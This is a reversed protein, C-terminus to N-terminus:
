KKHVALGVLYVIPHIIKCFVNGVLSDKSKGKTLIHRLHKTRETAFYAGINTLVNNVKMGRVFPKFLWHYGVEHIPTLYKKQYIYWTKMAQSWDDLQTQRYMETCVIKSDGPDGAAAAERDQRDRDAMRADRAEEQTPANGPKGSSDTFNVSTGDEHTFSGDQNESYTTGSDNIGIGVSGGRANVDEQGGSSFNDSVFTDPTQRAPQDRLDREERQEKRGGLAGPSAIQNNDFLQQSQRISSQADNSFATLPPDEFFGTERNYKRGTPLGAGQRRAEADAPGDIGAGRNRAAISQQALDTINIRSPEGTEFAGGLNEGLGFALQRDVPSIPAATPAGTEFAGGLNEGLGFALQRDVPAVPAATGGLTPAGTEFAGGLNEGLGFALQRNVPSVPATSPLTQTSVPSVPATEVRPMTSTGLGAPRPMPMDQPRMGLGGYNGAKIKEALAITQERNAKGEKTIAGYLGGSLLNIQGKTMNVLDSALEPNPAIFNARGTNLADAVNAIGTVNGNFDYQLAYEQGGITARAGGLGASIEPDGGDGGSDQQVVRAPSVPAPDAAPPPTKDKDGSGPVGTQQGVYSGVNGAGVVTKTDTTPGLQLGAPTTFPTPSTGVPTKRVSPQLKDDIGDRNRDVFGTSVFQASAAEPTTVRGFLDQQKAIGQTTAVNPANMITMGAQASKIENDVYEVQGADEMEGLGRLADRRLGEYMGLGHYRVVNAPVVLEGESLLVHQDDKVEDSTAGPPPDAPTGKSAEEYEPQSSSGMDIVVALGKGKKSKTGGEKMPMPQKEQPMPPAALATTMPQPMEQASVIPTPAAPQPIGIQTKDQKLKKAVLKLAEDRPDVVKTAAARPIKPPKTPKNGTPNSTAETLPMLGTKAMLAGGEKYNSIVRPQMNKPLYTPGEGIVGARSPDLTGAKIATDGFYNVDKTYLADDEKTPIGLVTDELPQAFGLYNLKNREQEFGLLNSFLKTIRAPNRNDSPAVAEPPIGRKNLIDQAQLSHKLYRKKLIRENKPTFPINADQLLNKLGPAGMTGSIGSTRGTILEDGARVIGEEVGSKEGLEKELVDFAAHTLEHVLVMRPDINLERSINEFYESPGYPLRKKDRDSLGPTSRYTVTPKDVGMAKTMSQPVYLGYGGRAMDDMAKIDIKGEKYLEYGLRALPNGYMFPELEARLEVDGLGQGQTYKPKDVLSKSPKSPTVTEDKRTAKKVSKLLSDAFSKRNKNEMLASGSSMQRAIGIQKSIQKSKAIAKKATERNPPGKVLIYDKKKLSEEIDADRLKGDKGMRLTPYIVEGKLDDVYDNATQVTAGRKSPTNRNMARSLWAPRTDIEM